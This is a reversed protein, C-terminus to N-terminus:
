LVKNLDPQGRQSMRELVKEAEELTVVQTSNWRLAESKEWAAHESNYVMAFDIYKSWFRKPDKRRDVMVVKQGENYQSDALIVFM